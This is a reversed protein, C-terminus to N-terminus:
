RFVDVWELRGGRVLLELAAHRLTVRVNYGDRRLRFYTGAPVPRTRGDSGMVHEEADGFATEVSATPSSLAVHELTPTSTRIVFVLSDVLEGRPRPQLELTGIAAEVIFGPLDRDYGIVRRPTIGQGPADDTFLADFPPPLPPPPPPEVAVPAEM